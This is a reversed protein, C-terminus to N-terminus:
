RLNLKLFVIVLYSFAPNSSISLYFEWHHLVINRSYRISNIEGEMLTYPLYILHMIQHKM